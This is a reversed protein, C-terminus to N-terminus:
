DANTGLLAALQNRLWEANNKPKRRKEESKQTHNDQFVSQKCGSTTLAAANRIIQLALNCTQEEFMSRKRPEAKGKHQVNAKCSCNDINNRSTPQLDQLDIPQRDSSLLCNAQGDESACAMALRVWQGRLSRSEVQMRAAWRHCVSLREIARGDILRSM